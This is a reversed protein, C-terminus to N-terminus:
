TYSMISYGVLQMFKILDETPKEIGKKKDTIKPFDKRWQRSGNSKYAVYNTILDSKPGSAVKYYFFILSM